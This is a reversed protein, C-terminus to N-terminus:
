EGKKKKKKKLDQNEREFRIINREGKGYFWEPSKQGVTNKIKSIRNILAWNWVTCKKLKLKNLKGEWSSNWNGSLLIRESRADRNYQM